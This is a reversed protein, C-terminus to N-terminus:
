SMHRLETKRVYEVVVITMAMFEAVFMDIQRDDDDDDDDDDGAGAPGAAAAAACDVCEVGNKNELFVFMTSRREENRVWERGVSCRSRQQMKFDNKDSTRAIILIM